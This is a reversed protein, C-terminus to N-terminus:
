SDNKRRPKKQLNGEANTLTNINILKKDEETLDDYNEHELLIIKKLKAYARQLKNNSEHIELIAELLEDQIGLKNIIRVIEFGQTTTIIM